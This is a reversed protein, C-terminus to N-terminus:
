KAAGAPQAKANRTEDEVAAAMAEDVAATAAELDAFKGAAVDAAVRAAAKAEAALVPADKPDFYDSLSSLDLKWNGDARVLRPQRDEPAGEDVVLTVEEGRAVAPKAKKLDTLLDEDKLAAIQEARDRMPAWYLQYGLFGGGAAVIFALLVVTLRRERNTM